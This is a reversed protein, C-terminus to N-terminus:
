VLKRGIIVTNIVSRSFIDMALAFLDDSLALALNDVLYDRVEQLKGTLYLYDRAWVPRSVRGQIGRLYFTKGSSKDGLSEDLYFATQHLLKLIDLQCSLKLTDPQLGSRIMTVGGSAAM